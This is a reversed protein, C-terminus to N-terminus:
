KRLFLFNSNKYFNFKIDKLYLFLSSFYKKIYIFNLFNYFAFFILLNKIELGHLEIALKKYFNKRVFLAQLLFAVRDNLFIFFFYFFVVVIFSLQNHIIFLDLQPM